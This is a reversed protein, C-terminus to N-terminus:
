RAVDWRLTPETPAGREGTLSVTLRRRDVQCLAEKGTECYYLSVDIGVTGLGGEVISLPVAIRLRSAEHTLTVERATLGTSGALKARQPAQENVHFHEPLGVELTLTHAGPAIAVPGLAVEPTKAPPLTSAQALCSALLVVALLARM